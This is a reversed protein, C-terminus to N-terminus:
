FSVKIGDRLMSIGMLCFNLCIYVTILKCQCMFADGGSYFWEILENM